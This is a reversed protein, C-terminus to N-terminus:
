HQFVSDVMVNFLTPFKLGGQTSGRTVRFQTGHYGNHQTAVEQQVWFETLIGWMKPGVGYGELTKLLQGQDLNNYTKRTYLFLLSLPDQDVSELDQEIKLETTAKGM